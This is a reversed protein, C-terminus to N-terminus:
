GSLFFFNQFSGRIDSNMWRTRMIMNYTKRMKLRKFIDHLPESNMRSRQLREETTILKFDAVCIMEPVDTDKIVSDIWSVQM